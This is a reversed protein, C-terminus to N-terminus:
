LGITRPQLWVPVPLPSLFLVKAQNKRTVSVLERTHVRRGCILSEGYTTCPLDPVIVTAILNKM